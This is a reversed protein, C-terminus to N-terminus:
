SAPLGLGRIAMINRQIESSGAVISWRPSDLFLSQMKPHLGIWKSWDRLQGYPGLVRMAVDFLRERVQSAYLKGLSAEYTLAAKREQIDAVKYILLRAIHLQTALDALEEAIWQDGATVRGARRAQSVHEVLEDFSRQLDGVTGGREYNLAGVMYDWGRNKEGVLNKRPVVVDDFFVENTRVGAMTQLPRVSIGPTAPDVIFMSIGKHKPVTKDTRAALWIFDCHHAHSSFTKQGNVVFSDGREEAALVLSAVDSGAGPETYATAFEIEGAAMRTLYTAKQEETGYHLIGPGAVELFTLPYPAEHYAMEESLIFRTLPSLERGGYKRPWTPALLRHEGMKRLLARSHPGLGQGSHHEHAAQATMERALFSRVEGQFDREQQTFEFNM